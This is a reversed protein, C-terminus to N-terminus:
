EGIMRNRAFPVSFEEDKVPYLFTSLRTELKKRNQKAKDLNQYLERKYDSMGPEWEKFDVLRIAKAANMEKGIEVCLECGCSRSFKHDKVKYRLIEKKLDELYPNHKLSALKNAANKIEVITM